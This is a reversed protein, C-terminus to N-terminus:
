DTEAKYVEFLVATIKEPMPAHDAEDLRAESEAAVDDLVTSKGGNM